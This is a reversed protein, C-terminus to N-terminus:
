IHFILARFSTGKQGIVEYYGETCEHVTERLEAFTIRRYCLPCRRGNLFSRSMMKIITGCKIHRISCMEKSKVDQSELVYEDGTLLKMKEAFQKASLPHRSPDQESVPVSKCLRCIRRREFSAFDASFTGGCVKDKIMVEYGNQGRRKYSILEFRNLGGDIREQMKEKALKKECKCVGRGYMVDRIKKEMSKGCTEHRIKVVNWDNATEVHDGLVQWSCRLWVTKLSSYVSVTARRSM